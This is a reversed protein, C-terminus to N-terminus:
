VELHDAVDYFLVTLHEAGTGDHRKSTGAAMNRPSTGTTFHKKMDSLRLIIEGRVSMSRNDKIRAPVGKMRAVNQSIREGIDGDGRTIADVMKGDRYIVEISIGDLKEAVFLDHAIKGAGDKQLLEECRALWGRLEEENVAKNLSGM